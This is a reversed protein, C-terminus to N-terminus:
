CIRSSSTECRQERDLILLDQNRASFAKQIQNPRLESLHNGGCKLISQCEREPGVETPRKVLFGDICREAIHDPFVLHPLYQSQLLRTFPESMSALDVTNSLLLTATVSVLVGRIFV